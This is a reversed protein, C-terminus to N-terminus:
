DGHPGGSVFHCDASSTHLSHLPVQLRMFALLASTGNPLVYM